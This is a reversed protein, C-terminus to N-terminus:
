ENNNNIAELELPPVRPVISVTSTSKSAFVAVVILFSEVQAVQTKHSVCVPTTLSGVYYQVGYETVSRRSEQHRQRQRTM